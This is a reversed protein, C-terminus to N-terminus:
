CDAVVVVVVQGGTHVVVLAVEESVYLIGLALPFSEAVDKKAITLRNKKTNSFITSSSDLIYKSTGGRYKILRYGRSLM